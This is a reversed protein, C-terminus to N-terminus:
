EEPDIFKQMYLNGDGKNEGKVTYGFREFTHRSYPSSFCNLETAGHEMCYNERIASLAAYVGQKRYDPAVIDSKMRWKGNGMDKACVAGILKGEHQALWWVCKDDTALTVVTGKVLPKLFDTNKLTTETVTIELKTATHLKRQKM